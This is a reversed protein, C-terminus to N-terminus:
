AIANLEPERLLDSKGFRGKLLLTRRKKDISLKSIMVHRKKTHKFCTSKSDGIIRNILQDKIM